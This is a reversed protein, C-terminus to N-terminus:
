PSVHDDICSVVWEVMADNYGRMSFLVSLFTHYDGVCGTKIRDCPEVSLRNVVYKHM